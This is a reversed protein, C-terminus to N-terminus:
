SSIWIKLFVLPNHLDCKTKNGILPSFTYNKEIKPINLHLLCSSTSLLYLTFNHLSQVTDWLVSFVTSIKIQRCITMIANECYLTSEHESLFLNNSPYGWYLYDQCPYPQIDRKKKGSREGGLWPTIAGARIGVM